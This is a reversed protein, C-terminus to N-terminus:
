AKPHYPMLLYVGALIGMGDVFGFHSIAAVGVLGLCALLYLVRYM